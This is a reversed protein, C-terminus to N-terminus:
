PGPHAPPLRALGYGLGLRLGWRDFLPGHKVTTEELTLNCKPEAAKGRLRRAFPGLQLYKGYIVHM